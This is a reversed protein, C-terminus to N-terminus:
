TKMTIDLMPLYPVGLEFELGPIPSPIGTFNIISFYVAQLFLNGISVGKASKKIGEFKALLLGLVGVADVYKVFFALGGRSTLTDDTTGLKNIRYSECSKTEPM